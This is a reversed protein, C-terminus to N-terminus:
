AVIRLKGLEYKEIFAEFEPYDEVFEPHSDGDPHCSCLIMKYLIHADSHDIWVVKSDGTFTDVVALKNGSLTVVLDEAIHVVGYNELFILPDCIVRSDEDWQWYKDGNDTFVRLSIM